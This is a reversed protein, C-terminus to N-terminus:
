KLLWSYGQLLKYNIPAMHVTPMLISRVCKYLDKIWKAKRVKWSFSARSNVSGQMWLGFMKNQRPFRIDHAVTAAEQSKASHQLCSCHHRMKSAQWHRGGSFSALAKWLCWHLVCETVCVRQKYLQCVSGSYVSAILPRSPLPPRLALVYLSFCCPVHSYCSLFVSHLRVNDCGVLM